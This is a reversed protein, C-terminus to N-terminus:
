LEVICYESNHCDGITNILANLKFHVPVMLNDIGLNEFMFYCDYEEQHRMENKPLFLHKTSIYGSKTTNSMTLDLPDVYLNDKFQLFFDNNSSEVIKLELKAYNGSAPLDKFCEERNSIYFFTKTDLLKDLSNSCHIKFTSLDIKHYYDPIYFDDFGTFTLSEIPEKWTDSSLSIMKSKSKIIKEDDLLSNGPECVDIKHTKVLPSNHGITITLRISNNSSTYRNDYKYNFTEKSSFTHTLIEKGSSYMDNIIEVKVVTKETKNGSAVISMYSIDNFYLPSSVFSTFSALSVARSKSPLGSSLSIGSLLLILLKRM